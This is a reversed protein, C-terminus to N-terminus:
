GQGVTNAQFPRKVDGNVFALSMRQFTAFIGTAVEVRGASGTSLFKVNQARGRKFLTRHLVVPHKFAM